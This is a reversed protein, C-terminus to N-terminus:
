VAAERRVMMSTKAIPSQGRAARYRELITALAL